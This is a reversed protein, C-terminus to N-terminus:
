HGHRNVDNLDMKRTEKEKAEGRLHRDTADARTGCFRKQVQRTTSGTSRREGNWRSSMDRSATLGVLECEYEALLAHQGTNHESLGRGRAPGDLHSAVSAAADDDDVGGGEDSGLSLLITSSM